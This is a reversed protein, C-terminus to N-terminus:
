SACSMVKRSERALLTGYKEGTEEAVEILKRSVGEHEIYVTNRRNRAQERQTAWVCNDPTYNGNVDEREISHAASPRKGMDAIFNEFSEWRECVSIGRGGYHKFVKDNPNTCRLRMNNWCGYEASQSMGHSTRIERVL